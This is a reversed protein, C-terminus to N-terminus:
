IVGRTQKNLKTRKIFVPVFSLKVGAKQKNAKDMVHHMYDFRDECIWAQLPKTQQLKM